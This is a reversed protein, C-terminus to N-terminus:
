ESQSKELTYGVVGIAANSYKIRSEPPYILGIGNLSAVTKELSPEAPDFYNGIPPERILGSRHSMLMRLTIPKEGEKYVPKFEPIYKAVPADIDIKGEEVLQMVAVDTFLKSVSGVRYVTEATAPIKKARDQFGFGAAWVVKQDDVLAISLAPLRKDDVEHAILKELEAVAAKYPEAPPVSPQAFTPAALLALAILSLIAANFAGHRSGSPTPYKLGPCRGPSDHTNTKWASPRPCRRDCGNLTCLCRGYGLANGQALTDSGKPTLFTLVSRLVDVCRSLAHRM